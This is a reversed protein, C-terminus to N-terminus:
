RIARYVVTQQPQTTFPMSWWTFLPSRLQVTIQARWLGGAESTTVPAANVYLGQSNIYGNPDAPIFDNKMQPYLDLLENMVANCISKQWNILGTNMSPDPDPYHGMIGIGAGARAANTVAIWTYMFRGFDISGLILLMLVPMIFAMEIAVAGRRPFGGRPSSRRTARM